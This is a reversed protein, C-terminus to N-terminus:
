LGQDIRHPREGFLRVWINNNRNVQGYAKMAKKLQSCGIIKKELEDRKLALAEWVKQDDEELQRFTKLLNQRKVSIAEPEQILQNKDVFFETVKKFKAEMEEFAMQRQKFLEDVKAWNADAFAQKQENIIKCFQNAHEQLEDLLNLIKDENQANAVKPEVEQM